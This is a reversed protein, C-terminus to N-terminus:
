TARRLAFPSAWATAIGAFSWFLIAGIPMDLTFNFLSWLPVLCAGGFGVLAAARRWDLTMVAGIGTALVLAAFLWLLLLLGPWGLEWAAKAYISEGAIPQTTDAYQTGLTMSGTGRGLVGQDAITELQARVRSSTYAPPDAEADGRELSTARGVFGGEPPGSGVRTTAAHIRGEDDIVTYSLTRLGGDGEVLPQYALAVYGLTIAVAVGALAAFRRRWVLYAALTVSSAAVGLFLARGGAYVIGWVLVLPAAAGLLVLVRRSTAALLAYAALVAFLLLVSFAGVQLMTGSPRLYSIDGVTVLPPPAGPTLENLREDGSLAQVASFAAELVGAVLVLLVLGLTRARTALLKPAVWLLPVYITWARLGIVGQSLSEARLLYLVALLVVGGLPLVLWWPRRWEDRQLRPLVAAYIGLALFDKVLFVVIDNLVWKRVAGEVIAVAILGYLGQRPWTYGAAFAIVLVVAALAYEGGADPAALLASSPALVSAAVALLAGLGLAVVHRRHHVITPNAVAIVGM